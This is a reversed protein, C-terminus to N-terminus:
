ASQKKRKAAFVLGGMGLALMLGLSVTTSAEPVAATTIILTQATSVGKNDSSGAFLLESTGPNPNLLSGGISFFSGAHATIDQLAAANLTCTLTDTPLAAVPAAFTGYSPGDALDNYIATSVVGPPQDANLTIADTSVGSLAFNINTQNSDSITGYRTVSLTAGTVIKGTLDLSSLDFSFFSHTPLTGITQGNVVVYLQGTAYNNNQPDHRGDSYYYGEDLYGAQASNSPTTFTQAHAPLSLGFATLLALAFGAKNLISM